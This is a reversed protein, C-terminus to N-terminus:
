EIYQLNSVIGSIGLRVRFRGEFIRGIITVVREMSRIRFLKHTSAEDHFVQLQVFDELQTFVITTNANRFRIRVKLPNSPNELKKRMNRAAVSFEYKKQVFSTSVSLAQALADFVEPRTMGYKQAFQNVKVKFDYISVGHIACLDM